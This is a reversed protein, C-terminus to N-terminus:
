VITAEHVDAGFVAANPADADIVRVRPPALGAALAMEEVVNVLQREEIDTASPVRAGARALMVDLSGPEAFLRRLWLWVLMTVVMGPVFLAGARLLLALWRASPGATVAAPAGDFLSGIARFVSWATDPVPIVIDLLRLALAAALYLAPTVVMAFPIGLVAACAGALVSYWRAHRRRR